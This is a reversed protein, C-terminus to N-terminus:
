PLQLNQPTILEAMGQFAQAYEDHPDLLVVHGNPHAALLERLIMTLACSKGSGITGVIASHKSLFDQSRLHAIKDPDQHLVGIPLTSTNPKAYIRALDRETAAYAASGLVPYTSIGRSFVPAEGPSPVALEGLLDIEATAARQARDDTARQHLTLTEIFGFAMANPTPIKVLSGIQAVGYAAAGQSPAAPGQLLCSLKFGTVATVVGIQQQAVPAPRTDPKPQDIMPTDGM